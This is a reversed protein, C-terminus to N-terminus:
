RGGVRLSGAGLRAAVLALLVGDWGGHGPVREGSQPDAAPGGLHAPGLRAAV